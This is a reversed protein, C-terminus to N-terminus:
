SVSEVVPAADTLVREFEQAVKAEFESEM